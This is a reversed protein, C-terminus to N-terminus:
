ATNNKFETNSQTRQPADEEGTTVAAFQSIGIFRLYGKGSVPALCPQAFLFCLVTGGGYEVRRVPTGRNGHQHAVAAALGDPHFLSAVVYDQEVTREVVKAADSEAPHIGVVRQLSVGLVCLDLPHIAAFHRHVTRVLKGGVIHLPKFHSGIHQAVILRGGCSIRLVWGGALEAEGGPLQGLLYGDGDM